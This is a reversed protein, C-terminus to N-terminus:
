SPSFDIFRPDAAESSTWKHYVLIDELIWLPLNITDWDKCLDLVVGCWGLSVASWSTLMELTRRPLTHHNSVIAEPFWAMWWKIFGVLKLMAKSAQWFSEASNFLLGSSTLKLGSYEPYRKCLEHIASGLEQFEWRIASQETSSPIASCLYWPLGATGGGQPTFPHWPAMVNWHCLGNTPLGPPICEALASLVAPPFAGTPCNCALMCWQVRNITTSHICAPPISDFLM